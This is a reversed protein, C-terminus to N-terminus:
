SIIIIKLIIIIFTLPARVFYLPKTKKINLAIIYDLLLQLILFSIISLILYISEFNYLNLVIILTAFFSPFFGHIVVKFELKKQLNWNLAGIFVLIIITYNILFSPILEENIQFFFYKDLIIVFFPFLGLYSLLYQYNIKKLM